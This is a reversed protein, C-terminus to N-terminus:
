GLEAVLEGPTGADVHHRRESGAQVDGAAVLRREFRRDRGIAVRGPNVQACECAESSSTNM